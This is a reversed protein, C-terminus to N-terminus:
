QLSLEMDRRKKLPVPRQLLKAMQHKIAARLETTGDHLIDCRADHFTAILFFIVIFFWCPLELSVNQILHIKFTNKYGIDLTNANLHM